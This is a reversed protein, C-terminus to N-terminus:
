RVTRRLEAALVDRQQRLDAIEQVFEVVDHTNLHSLLLRDMAKHHRRLTESIASQWAEDLTRWSGAAPPATLTAPPTINLEWHCTSLPCAAMERPGNSSVGSQTVNAGM